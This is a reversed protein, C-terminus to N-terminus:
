GHILSQCSFTMNLTTDVGACSTGHALNEDEDEDAPVVEHEVLLLGDDEAQQQGEGDHEAHDAFPEGDGQEVGRDHHPVLQVVEGVPDPCEREPRHDAAHVEPVPQHWLPSSPCASPLPRHDFGEALGAMVILSYFEYCVFFVLKNSQHKKHRSSGRTSNHFSGLTNTGPACM